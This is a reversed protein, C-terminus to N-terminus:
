SREKTLERRLLGRIQEQVATATQTADVIEVSTPWREAERRFGQRVREFYEEGRSEMRDLSQGWRSRAVEAPLDLLVTLQPWLKETALSNVQWLADAPLGGAHGQYVITSLIYRDCLVIEGRSLAPRVTEHLLQARAATFLLAESWSCIPVQTQNLLLQRLALGLATSGPDACRTVRHGQQELWAQTLDMQTSKGGGDIGDFVIFM